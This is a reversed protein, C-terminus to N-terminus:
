CRGSEAQEAAPKYARSESPPTWGYKRWTAQVDAGRTWRFNPDRLGGHLCAPLVATEVSERAQNEM